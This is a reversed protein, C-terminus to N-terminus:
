QEKERRLYDVNCAHAGTVIGTSVHDGQDFGYQEVPSPDLGQQSDTISKLATIHNLEPIREFQQTHSPVFM